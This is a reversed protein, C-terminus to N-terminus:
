GSSVYADCAYCWFSLDLAGMVVPHMERTGHEVMHARIYRGCRVAGCHLCTMVEDVESCQSCKVTGGGAAGVAVDFVGASIALADVHPCADLPVVAHWQRGNM